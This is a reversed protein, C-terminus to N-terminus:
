FTEATGSGGLTQTEVLVSEMMGLMIAVLGQQMLMSLVLWLDERAMFEVSVQGTMVASVWKSKGVTEPVLYKDLGSMPKDELRRMALKSLERAKLWLLVDEVRDREM